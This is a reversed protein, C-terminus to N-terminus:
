KYNATEEELTYVSIYPRLKRGQSGALVGKRGNHVEEGERSGYVM